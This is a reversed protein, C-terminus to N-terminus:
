DWSNILYRDRLLGFIPGDIGNIIQIQHTIWMNNRVQMWAIDDVMPRTEEYSKGWVLDYVSNCDIRDALKM